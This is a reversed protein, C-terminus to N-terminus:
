LWDFFTNFSFFILETDIVFQITQNKNLKNFRKKKVKKTLHEIFHSFFSLNQIYSLIIM